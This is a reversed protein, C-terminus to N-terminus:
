LVTFCKSFMEDEERRLVVSQAGFIVDTLKLIALRHGM